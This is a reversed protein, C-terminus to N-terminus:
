NRAQGRTSDQRCRGRSCSLMCRWVELAIRGIKGVEQRDESVAGGMQNDELEDEMCRRGDERDGARNKLKFAVHYQLM